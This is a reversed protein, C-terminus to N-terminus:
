ARSPAAPPIAFGSPPAGALHRDWMIRYAAEFHRTFRATDFLPHSSRNAALRAKIAALTAPERALRLALAAYDQLSATVLEPLGIAHLLSAGVRGVFSDGLCTVFPVGTWLADCGTTHANVPLTDLVLDAHNHRALHVTPMAKPAFVIRAPEVGHGAAAARLNTEALENSRLLWLVSGPVQELLSMWTAFVPPIIKYTSNFCCFVFADPPLGCEARSPVATAIERKSDNVFYCDPMLVLQECFAAQAELPAVWRDTFTYDIFRTGLTGPFGLYTVQVPAPRPALAGIRTNNSWGNLDIAIDIERERILGAIAGDTLTSVDHFHDFAKEMRRRMDTGDDPGASFGHVDFQSRDHGEIMGAILFSMAHYRFDSSLYGIRIRDRRTAPRPPMPTIAGVLRAAWLQSCRRQALADRGFGLYVFPSVNAQGGTVARDLLPAVAAARKWDCGDLVLQGYASLADSQPAIEVAREYDALAEARRDARVLCDARAFRADFHAPSRAILRDFSGIAEDLRGLSRLVNGKNYLADEHDPQLALAHDFSAIADTPRGLLKLANGHNCWFLPKAADVAIAREILQRGEEPAGTQARLSGLLHLADASRPNLAIAREYCAAATALDGRRHADLGHVLAELDAPPTPM